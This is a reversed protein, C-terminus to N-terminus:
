PAGINVAECIDVGLCELLGDAFAIDHVDLAWNPTELVEEKSKRNTAEVKHRKYCRRLFRMAMERESKM